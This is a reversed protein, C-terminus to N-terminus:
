RLRKRVGKAKVKVKVKLEIPSGDAPAASEDAPQVVVFDAIEWTFPPPKRRDKARRETAASGSSARRDATRRDWTVVVPLDATKRKLAEARSVAGRRVIIEIPKNKPVCPTYRGNSPRAPYAGNM